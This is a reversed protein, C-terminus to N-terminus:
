LKKKTLLLSKWVFIRTYRCNFSISIALLILVSGKFMFGRIFYIISFKIQTHFLFENKKINKKFSHKKFFCM